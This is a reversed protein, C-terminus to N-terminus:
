KAPAPADKVLRLGARPDRADHALPRVRRVAADIPADGPGGGKTLFAEPSDPAVRVGTVIERVNGLLGKVGYPSSDKVSKVAVPEVFDGDETSGRGGGPLDFKLMAGAAVAWEAENPLRYTTGERNSRWAAFAVADDPTLGRVPRERAAAAVIMRAPKDPDPLFDVPPMRRRREDDNGISDLFALFAAATTEYREMLFPKVPVPIAISPGFPAGRHDVADGGPIVLSWESSISDPEVPVVFTARLPERDAVRGGDRYVFPIAFPIVVSGSRGLTLRYLGPAVAIEGVPVNEVRKGRTLDELLGPGTGAPAIVRVRVPAFKDLVYRAKARVRELDDASVGEAAKMADDYESKLADHRRAGEAISMPAGANAADAGAADVRGELRQISAMVVDGSSTGGGLGGGGGFSSGVWWGVGLAALAVLGTALYQRVARGATAVVTAATPSEQNQARTRAGALWAELDSAMSRANVYREATKPAMAKRAISALATPVAAPLATYTGERADKFLDDLTRLGVDELRSLKDACLEAKTEDGKELAGREAEKLADIRRRM